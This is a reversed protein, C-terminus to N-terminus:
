RGKVKIKYSYCLLLITDSMPTTYSCCHAEGHVWLISPHCQFRLTVRPYNVKVKVRYHYYLHLIPRVWLWEVIVWRQGQGLQHLMPTIRHRGKSHYYLQTFKLGEWDNETSRGKVNVMSMSSYCLLSRTSLRPALWFWTLKLKSATLAVQWM